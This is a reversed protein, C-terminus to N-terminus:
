ERLIEEYIRETAELMRDLGFRDRVSRAASNGLERRRAEDQLLLLVADAIARDDGVPVLVGTNNSDIITKAGETSTAVVATHSAMSEAMALGFSEARSASVFIDLACYLEAIDTVWDLLLVRSRLQLEDILRELRHRHEQTRSPDIGAVIFRANPIIAAVRAAARLFEEHGKLPKLEGVTGILLATEPLNWTNLFQARDFQDLLRQFRDADVGNHVVAIRDAPVVREARLQLEVAESVAIVRSVHALTFRHFRGLPFLVHRTIVFRAVRSLAAAYAALPYDRAMHAHVIQIENKKVISALRRASQADLSNRLALTTINNKPLQQLRDTLPSKPRLVAHMDHGRSALGNVLDM